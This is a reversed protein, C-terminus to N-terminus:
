LEPRRGEGHHIFKKLAPIRATWDDILAEIREVETGDLRPM